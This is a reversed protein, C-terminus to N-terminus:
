LRMASGSAASRTAARRSLNSRQCASGNVRGACRLVYLADTTVWDNRRRISTGGWDVYDANLKIDASVRYYRAEAPWGGDPLRKSELLDLADGCRSDGILGMEAFVKLAGLIDYHWYLPYHLKTFEAKIVEGDKRRKYLLRALFLESAQLASERSKDDGTAQGYLWLARMCLLTHIFTSQKAQPNKDCNWGGDPWRWHHLREALDHTRDEDLGLRLLAYLTYGQQSACTRHRGQMVPIADRCRYADKKAHAEFEKFFRPGLWHDTVQEAIGDLEGAGRPYGIDALLILVWHAGQWKDYVGRTDIRGDADQRQLLSKVRESEKIERELQEVPRFEWRHRVCEGLHAM